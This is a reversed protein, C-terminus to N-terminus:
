AGPARLDEYSVMVHQRYAPREQLRKYWAELNPLAPRKIPLTFYRYCTAGAPIDGITLKEGAIFKRGQLQKDILGYLAGLEVAAADIAAQNRKDAATRVLGMFVVSLPPSLTTQKWDMWQDARAREGPDAPWLSGSGYRAALYRVVAGSEWVIVGGDDITPIRKNPNMAVYQPTDLGGFKGGADIREHPIGLEALAWMAKQVNMSNARGWIKLM